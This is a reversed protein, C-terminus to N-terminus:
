AAIPPATRNGRRLAARAVVSMFGAASEAAQDPCGAPGKRGRARDKKVGRHRRFFRWLTTQGFSLGQEALKTRLEALTIDRQQKLMTLITQAHAEIRLSRRDGRQPQPRADGNMRYVAYWRIASAASVGFRRAAERCSAGATIAALM